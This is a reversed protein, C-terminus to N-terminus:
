KQQPVLEVLPTVLVKQARSQLWSEVSPKIQKGHTAYNTFANYLDWRTPENNGCSEELRSRIEEFHKKRSSVLGTMIRDMMEWEISDGICNNLMAKFKESKETMQQIMQPIIQAFDEALKSTHSVCFEKVWGVNVVMGNSCALRVLQPLIMIGTTKDYSNVIRIGQFFEEGEQVYMKSGKFNIDVFIKDGGNRVRADSEINLNTLADAVENVVHEHQVLNYRDSVISSVKQKDLNWVAFHQQDLTTIPEGNINIDNNGIYVPRKEARDFGIATNRLESIQMNIGGDFKNVIIKTFNQNSKSRM